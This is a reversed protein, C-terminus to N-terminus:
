ELVVDLVAQKNTPNGAAYIMKPIDEIRVFRPNLMYQVADQWDREAFETQPVNGPTLPIITPPAGAGDLIISSAAVDWINIIPHFYIDGRRLNYDVEPKGTRLGSSAVATIAQVACGLAQIARVQTALTRCVKDGLANTYIRDTLLMADQLPRESVTLPHREGDMEAELYSQRNEEGVFMLDSCPFYVVGARMRGDLAYGISVAFSYANGSQFNKTGDLPDTIWQESHAPSIRFKLEESVIGPMSGWVHERYKRIKRILEKQSENDAATVIDNPSFTEGKYDFDASNKDFHKQILMGTHRALYKITKVLDTSAAKVM